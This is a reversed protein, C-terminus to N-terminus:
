ALRRRKPHIHCTGLFTAIHKVFFDPGTVSIPSGLTVVAALDPVAVAADMAILGGQSHGIIGMRNKAVRGHGRLFEIACLADDVFDVDAGPAEVTEGVNRDDLRLVAIGHRTLYDAIVLYPDHLFMDGDRDQPGSGSIILVTPYRGGGEPYTFTGAFVVSSDRNAFRVEEEVYPFPRTPTQPRHAQLNFRRFTMRRSQGNREFEGVIADGELKGEFTDKVKPHNSWFYVSDGSFSVTDFWMTARLYTAKTSVALKGGEMADLQLIHKYLVDDLSDEATWVGCVAEISRQQGCSVAFFPGILLLVFYTLRKLILFDVPMYVGFLVPYDLRRWNILAM